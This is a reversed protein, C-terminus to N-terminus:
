RVRAKVADTVTWKHLQYPIGLDIV